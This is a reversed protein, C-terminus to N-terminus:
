RSFGRGIWNGDSGDILNGESDSRGFRGLIWNGVEILRDRSWTM